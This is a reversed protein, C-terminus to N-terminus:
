LIGEGLILWVWTGLAGLALFPGFPIESRRDLSGRALLVGGVLSGMLSGALITLFAGRPGLFAGVLALYKVDGMGLGEASRLRRYIWAVGYLFGAGLAAGLLAQLLGAGGGRASFALGLALGPLTIRDPLLRTELDITGGTLSLWGLGGGSLAAGLTPSLLWVVAFWLATGLEVLPYRIPIGARCDRCRGALLLFSLLPVNDRPRIPAGCAPCHSPPSVISEGKPLRAICVNAFSGLCAGLVFAAATGLAPPLPVPPPGVNGFTADISSSPPWASWRRQM